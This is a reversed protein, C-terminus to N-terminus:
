YNTQEEKINLVYLCMSRHVAHRMYDLFTVNELLIPYSELSSMVAIYGEQCLDFYHAPLEDEFDNAIERVIAQSELIIKNRLEKNRTLRYEIVADNFNM